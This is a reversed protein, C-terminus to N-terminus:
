APEAKPRYNALLHRPFRKASEPEYALASALVTQWHWGHGSAVSEDGALLKQRLVALEGQRPLAPVGQLQRLPPSFEPKPGVPPLEFKWNTTSGGCFSKTVRRPVSETVTLGGCSLRSLARMKRTSSWPGSNPTHIGSEYLAQSIIVGEFTM